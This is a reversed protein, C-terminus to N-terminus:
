ETLALPVGVGNLPARPTASQLSFKREVKVRVRRMWCAVHQRELLWSQLQVIERGGGSVAQWIQFQTFAVSAVSFSRWCQRSYLVRGSLSSLLLLFLLEVVLLGNPSALFTRCEAIKSRFGM